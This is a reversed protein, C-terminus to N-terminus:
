QTMYIYIYFKGHEMSSWSTRVPLVAGEHVAPIVQVQRHERQVPAPHSVRPPLQTSHPNWNM